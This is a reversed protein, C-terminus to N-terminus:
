GGPNQLNFITQTAAAMDNGGALTTASMCDGAKSVQDYDQSVALTTQCRAAKAFQACAKVMADYVPLLRQNDPRGLRSITTTCGRLVSALTLMQAKTPTTPEATLANNIEAQERSVAQLWLLEPGTLPGTPAASPSV